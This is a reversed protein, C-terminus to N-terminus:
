PSQVLHHYEVAICRDMVVTLGADTAITAAESNIVGSQMWLVDAQIAAAELAIAPTQDPKRFVDVIDIHGPIARLDPYCPRGLVEEYNPNVPYVVYGAEMLQRMVSNSARWPKSSAGVVAISRSRLLIDRLESQSPAAM